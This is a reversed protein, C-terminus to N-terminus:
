LFDEALTPQAIYRNRALWTIRVKVYHGPEGRPEVKYKVPTRVHAYIWSLHAKVQNEGDPYIPPHSPFLSPICQHFHLHCVRTHIHIYISYGQTFTFTVPMSQHLHLVRTYIHISYGPTFTFTFPIGQHLHRPLSSTCM